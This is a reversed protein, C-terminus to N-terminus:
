EGLKYANLEFHPCAHFLQHDVGNVTAIDDTSDRLNGSGCGAATISPAVYDLAYRVVVDGAPASSLTIIVSDESTSMSAIGLTAGVGDKVCFGNDTTAAMLTTDFVLPAKPVNFKVTVVNDKLSASVPELYDPKRGDIVLQKYARGIYSSLLKYGVNTLHVNDTYFPLIYCPTSMYFRNSSKVADLQALAIDKHVRAGYSTQYTIFFPPSNQGTIAKIDIESDAQLTLLHSLYAGRTMRADLDAEGQEWAVVQVAHDANIGHAASAHALLKYDYYASGKNLSTISQGGVGAASAFIVHSNPNVGNEIAAITCAYNAAGSCVTEGLPSTDSNEILAGASTFVGDDARPGGSFSVNAYPQSVSIEPFGRSGISLSQGYSLLHNTAKAIPKIGSPLDGDSGSAASNIGAGIVQQNEVDYGLLVNLDADVLVPIVASSTSSGSNQEDLIESVSEIGNGVIKESDKNYGLLINLDKDVAIPTVGSAVSDDFSASNQEDLIGKTIETAADDVDSVSRYTKQFVAVGSSNLYLDIYDSDSTVVSFFQGSTTASVGSSTSAFLNGSASLWSISSIANDVDIMAGAWTKVEEGLRNPTSIASSNLRADLDQANDYLDLPDASEVPNGTNYTTM